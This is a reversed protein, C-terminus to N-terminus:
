ARAMEARASALAASGGGDVFTQFWLERNLLNWVLHGHDASGRRDDEIRKRVAAPDYLGRARIARESLLDDVMERLDRRIWARLPAAFNAKPRRVIEQPIWRAAVDRLVAKQVRGRIRERDGLRFALEVIRHDILPPRAEVGAAMAAKDTYALNHDPLFLTTDWRCMRDLYSGPAGDIGRRRARVEELADFPYRAANAFLEAYDDPSLSLDSRLFRDGPPLSAFGLFRRLWRAQRLGGQTTAVPVREAAREAFRRLPGPVVAQYRGALLCALHKRYGGFIEDAGMGSLLVTVGRRRAEEAILLTNIAAPDLIPEDLHWVVRPLLDVVRPSIEIETHDCGFARAARRAFRLDDPMAEFPLDEDRFRIAMTRVPTGTRRTMLAVITTSDLGGSLLAGVPVDSIMQLAVADPLLEALAREAEPRDLRAADEPLSWWRAITARGDRWTLTHAPPLKHVGVFGTRPSTPYHWPNHAVEPDAAIPVLGSGLIAKAESAFILGGPHEAWYFPKVGLRDRAAFLSRDDRDWVAFAFMGNLRQLCSTGWEVFAALLVETDSSSRFRHGKTSLEARIERFNYIEGNYTICRRRAEDWMPQAGAPTLDLIALRRHGFGFPEGEPCVIGDGDPGRHALVRTMGRVIRPDVFGAMGTIGCM